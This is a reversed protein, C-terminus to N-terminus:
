PLLVAPLSARGNKYKGPPQWHAQALKKVFHPTQANSYCFGLDPPRDFGALDCPWPDVSGKSEVEPGLIDRFKSLVEAASLRGM